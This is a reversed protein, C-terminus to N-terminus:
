LKIADWAMILSSKINERSAKFDPSIRPNVLNYIPYYLHALLLEFPVNKILKQDIGSQLLQFLPQFAAELQQKDVLDSFPSNAFQETFFFLSPNESIYHYLNEGAQMLEDRIPRSPDFQTMISNAMCTKIQIYTSVLLDEKNEYYIYLTAPSVGARKAIKAVSSAAFGIENVLNITASIIAQQKSEDKIRM